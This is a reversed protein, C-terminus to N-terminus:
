NYTASFLLSFGTLDWTVAGDGIGKGGGEDKMSALLIQGAVGLGWNSSVWWEKGVLGEFGPGWESQGHVKGSSDQLEIENMLLAGALYVNPHEFYYAVGVGLGGSVLQAGDLSLSVGPATVTPDSAGAITITGYVILNSTVAAGAALGFSVAGGSYAAEVGAVKTSSRLYGGGLHVRAYLGDHTEFGPSALSPQPQPVAPADSPALDARARGALACVVLLVAGSVRTRSSTLNRM